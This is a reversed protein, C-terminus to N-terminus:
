CPTPPAPPNWSLTLRVCPPVEATKFPLSLSFAVVGRPFLTKLKAGQESKEQRPPPTHPTKRAPSHQPSYGRDRLLKRGFRSRLAQSQCEERRSCEAPPKRAIKWCSSPTPAASGQRAAPPEAAVEPVVPKRASDAHRALARPLNLISPRPAVCFRRGPLLGCPAEGQFHGSLVSHPAPSRKL